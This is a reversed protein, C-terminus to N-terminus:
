KDTGRGRNLLPIRCIFEAGASCLNRCELSGCNRLIADVIFLGFGAYKM